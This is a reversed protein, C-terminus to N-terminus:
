SSAEQSVDETAVETEIVPEETVETVVETAIEQETASPFFEEIIPDVWDGVITLNLQSAIWDWAYSDLEWQEYAETDMSLNGQAVTQKTETLLAYYFSASQDLTVSVAYANLIKAEVIEGNQWVQIPTIEKM